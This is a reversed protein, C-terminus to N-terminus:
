RYRIFSNGSTDLLIEFQSKFPPACLQCHENGARLACGEGIMFVVMDLLVSPNHCGLLGLTLLLDEDFSTLIEAKKVNRGVGQSTRLKMLNDLSFKVDKFAEHNLLKWVFGLKELHFQICILIEYLTKAPFDTGDIKKVETLFRTLAFIM